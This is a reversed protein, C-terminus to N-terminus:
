AAAEYQFQVTIFDGAAPAVPWDAAWEGDAPTATASILTIVDDDVGEDTFFAGFLHSEATGSADHVTGSGIQIRTAATVAKAVVPVSIGYTGTGVDLATTGVKIEAHGIVLRGMKVYGGTHIAEDGLNTFNEVTPTYSTFAGDFSASSLVTGVNTVLAGDERLLVNEIPDPLGDSLEDAM